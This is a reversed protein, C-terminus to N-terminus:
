CERRRKDWCAHNVTAAGVRCRPVEPRKTVATGRGDLACQFVPPTEGGALPRDVLSQFDLGDARVASQPPGPRPIRVVRRKQNQLRIVLAVTMLDALLQLREGVGARKM